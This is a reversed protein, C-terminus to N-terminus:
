QSRGFLEIEIEFIKGEIFDNVTKKIEIVYEDDGIALTLVTIPMKSLSKLKKKKKNNLIKNNSIIVNTENIVYFKDYGIIDRYKNKKVLRKLIEKKKFNIKKM